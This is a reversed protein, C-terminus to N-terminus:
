HWPNPNQPRRGGMSPAMMKLDLQKYYKTIKMGQGSISHMLKEAQKIGKEVTPLTVEVSLVHSIPCWPPRWFDQQQQRTQWVTSFTISWVSPM